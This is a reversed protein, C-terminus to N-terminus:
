VFIILMIYDSCQLGGLYKLFTDFAGSKTSWFNSEQFIIDIFNGFYTSTVDTDSHRQTSLILLISTLINSLTEPILYVLSPYVLVFTSRFIYCNILLTFALYSSVCYFSVLLVLSKSVYTFLYYISLYM